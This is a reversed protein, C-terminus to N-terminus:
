TKRVTAKPQSYVACRFGHWHTPMEARRLLVHRPWAHGFAGAAPRLAVLMFNGGDFTLSLTVSEDQTDPGLHRWVEGDWHLQGQQSFERPWTWLTCAAAALWTLLSWGWAVAGAETWRLWLALVCATSGALVWGLRQGWVFRGVPFVVPPANHM